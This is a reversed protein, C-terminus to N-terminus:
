VPPTKWDIKMSDYEKPFRNRLAKAFKRIGETQKREQEAGAKDKVIRNLYGDNALSDMRDSLELWSKQSYILVARFEPDDVLSDLIHQFAAENKILNIKIDEDVMVIMYYDNYKAMWYEGAEERNM